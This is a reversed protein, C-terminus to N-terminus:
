LLRYRGGDAFACSTLSPNGGASLLSAGRTLDSLQYSVSSPTSLLQISRDSGVVTFDLQYEAFARVQADLEGTDLTLAASAVITGGVGFSISASAAGCPFRQEGVSRAGGRGITGSYNDTAVACAALGFDNRAVQSFNSVHSAILAREFDVSIM